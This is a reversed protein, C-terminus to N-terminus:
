EGEPSHTKYGVEEGVGGDGSAWSTFAVSAWWWHRSEPGKMGDMMYLELNISYRVASDLKIGFLKYVLSKRIITYWYIQTLM